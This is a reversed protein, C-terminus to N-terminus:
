KNNSNNNNNNNSFIEINLLLMLHRYNNSFKNIKVM